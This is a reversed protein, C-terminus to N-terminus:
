LGGSGFLWDRADADLEDVDIGYRSAIESASAAIRSGMERAIPIVPVVVADASDYGRESVSVLLGLGPGGDRMADLSKKVTARAADGPDNAHLM